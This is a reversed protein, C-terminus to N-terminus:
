LVPQLLHQGASAVMMMLIMPWYQTGFFIMGVMGLIFIGGGIAGIRTVPLLCLVGTMVVVLFGPLERPFELWGRLHAELDFSDSLFSNFMSEYVGMAAALFLTAGFFLMLQTKFNHDTSDM